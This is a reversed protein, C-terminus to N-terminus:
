QVRNLYNGLSIWSGVFVAPNVIGLIFSLLLDPIRVQRESRHINDLLIFYNVLLSGVYLLALFVSIRFWRQDLSPITHLLILLFPFQAFLVVMPLASEALAAYGVQRWRFTFVSKPIVFSVMVKIAFLPPVLIGPIILCIVGADPSDM